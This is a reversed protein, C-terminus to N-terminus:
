DWFIRIDSNCSKPSAFYNLFYIIISIAYGLNKAVNGEECRHGYRDGILNKWFCCNRCVLYEVKFFFEIGIWIM